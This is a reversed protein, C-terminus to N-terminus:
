GFFDEFDSLCVKNRLNADAGADLLCRVCELHGRASAVHLATEEEQELCFRVNSLRGFVKVLEHM